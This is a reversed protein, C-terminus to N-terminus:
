VGIGSWYKLGIYFAYIVSSAMLLVVTYSLGKLSAHMQPRRNKNLVTPRTCLPGAM